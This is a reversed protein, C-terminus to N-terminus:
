IIEIPKVLHEVDVLDHVVEPQADLECDDRPMTWGHPEGPVAPRFYRPWFGQDGAYAECITPYTVVADQPIKYALVVLENRENEPPLGLACCVATKGRDVLEQLPQGQSKEFTGWMFYRGLPFLRYSEDLRSPETRALLEVAIEADEPTPLIEEFISYLSDRTVVRGLIGHAPLQPEGAVSRRYPANKVRCRDRFFAQLLSEMPLSRSDDAVLKDILSNWEFDSLRTESFLNIKMQRSIADIPLSNMREKVSDRDRESRKELVQRFSSVTDARKEIGKDSM